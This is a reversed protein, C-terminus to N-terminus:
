QPCLGPQTSVLHDISVKDGPNKHFPDRIPHLTSSRTRWPRKHCQGFVCSACLPLPHQEKVFIRWFKKNIHGKESLRLITAYPLHKGKQHLLLLQRMDKDLPDPHALAKLQDDTLISSQQKYHEPNTPIDAIDPYEQRQIYDKPCTIIRGDKLLLHFM